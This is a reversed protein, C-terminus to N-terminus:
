DKDLWVYSALGGLLIPFVFTLISKWMRAGPITERFRGPIFVGRVTSMEIGFYLSVLALLGLIGGVLKRQNDNM